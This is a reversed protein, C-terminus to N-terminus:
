APHPAAFEAMWRAYNSWSADDLTFEPYAEGYIRLLAKRRGGGRDSKERVLTFDDPGAVWVASGNNAVFFATSGLLKVRWHPTTPLDLALPDAHPDSTLIDHVLEDFWAIHEPAPREAFLRRLNTYAKFRNFAGFLMYLGFFIFAPNPRGGGVAILGEWGLNWGAFLLLVIADLLVGEASPAAWKILGVLLEGAALLSYLLIALWFAGATHSFYALGFMILAFVVNERGSRQVSRRLERYAAVTQLRLRMTAEETM